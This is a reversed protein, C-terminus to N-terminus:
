PLKQWHFFHVLLEISQKLKLPALSLFSNDSLKVELHDGFLYLCHPLTVRHGMNVSDHETKVKMENLDCEGTAVM